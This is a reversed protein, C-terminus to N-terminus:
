QRFGPTRGPGYRSIQLYMTSLCSHSRDRRRRKLTCTRSLKTRRRKRTSGRPLHGTRNRGCLWDWGALSTMAAVGGSAQRSATIGPARRSRLEERMGRSLTHATTEVVMISGNHGMQATEGLPGVSGAPSKNSRKHELVLLRQQHDLIAAVIGLRAVGSREIHRSMQM